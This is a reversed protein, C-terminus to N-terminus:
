KPELLLAAPIDFRYIFSRLEAARTIRLETMEKVFSKNLYCASLSKAVDLSPLVEWETMSEEVLKQWLHELHAVALKTKGTKELLQAVSLQWMFKERADAASLQGTTLTNLGEEFKGKAALSLANKTASEWPATGASSSQGGSGGGQQEAIWLKTMDDAFPNGNVFKLDVIGPFCNVFAVVSQVLAQKAVEHGLAELASAVFRHSNLWFMADCFINEGAVILEGHAGSNLLNQLHNQRDEDIEPLQTVGNEAPPLREIQMWIATRLLSYAAPDALNKHRKYQAVKRAVDQVSKIAAKVDQDSGLDGVAPAAGLSPSSQPIPAVHSSAAPAPQASPKEAQTKPAAAQQLKNNETSLHDRWNKLSRKFGGLSPSNDPMKEDCLSQITNLQSLCSEFVAFQEVKPELASILPETKDALWSLANARAKARRAPPFMDDFYTELMDKIINLGADLGDMGEKLYLGHALYCSILFDKSKTELIGIALENITEWNIPNDSSIAELKAVEAMLQEYDDDYKSEQGAPAADSIPQKGLDSLREDMKGIEV